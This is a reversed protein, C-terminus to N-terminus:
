LALGRGLVVLAERLVSLAAHSELGVRILAPVEWPRRALGALVAFPRTEGNPGLGALAARPLGSEAPDAIVRVVAFPCGAAQAVRAVGGSEMDVAQAGTAEFRARKDAPTALARGPAHVRVPRAQPLANLLRCMWVDNTAVEGDATEVVRGIVIDGPRMAPDLGGAIGVSVLAQAGEALLRRAEAEARAASGAAIGCALDAPLLAAESQMGVVAGVPVRGPLGDLWCADPFLSGPPDSPM